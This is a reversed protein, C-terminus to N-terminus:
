TAVFDTAFRERVGGQVHSITKMAERMLLADARSLQSPVIYNDPAEARDLNELQHVLRLRTLHQYADTIDRAEAPSFIGYAAAARIRDITNTERLALSLGYVRGAGALQLGGAGKLDVAGRHPGSRAV